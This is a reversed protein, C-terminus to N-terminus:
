SLHLLSVECLSGGDSTEQRHKTGLGEGQGEGRGPEAPQLVRASRYPICTDRATAYGCCLAQEERGQGRYKDDVQHMSFSPCLRMSQTRTALSQQPKGGTESDRFLHQLTLPSLSVLAPAPASSATLLWGQLNNVPLPGKRRGVKPENDVVHPGMREQQPQNTNKM